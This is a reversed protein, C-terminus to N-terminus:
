DSIVTKITDPLCLPSLSNFKFNLPNSMIPDTQLFHECSARDCQALIQLLQSDPNAPDEDCCTCSLDLPVSIIIFLTQLTNKQGSAVASHLLTPLLMCDAVEEVEVDSDRVSDLLM